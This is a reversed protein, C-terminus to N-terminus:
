GGGVQVGLRTIRWPSQAKMGVIFLAEGEKASKVVAQVADEVVSMSVLDLTGLNDHLAEMREAREEASPAGAVQAFHSRIFVTLETRDGANIAAILDRIVKAAGEDVARGAARSIAGAGRDGNMSPLGVLPAIQERIQPAKVNQSTSAIIMEAGSRPDREYLFFNILDSGALGVPQSPDFRINRTEAKLLKETSFLATYFAHMDSVTSLMGGNGRLNWYPGDAAHPKSLMTGADAGARDYGHALDRPSFGPLHFGTHTLGLPKLINDRVYEDYTSGSVIEIIAALLSYGTNSYSSRSGPEFLLTAKMAADILEGRTVKEFDGGLGLPYGAEHNLLHGITINRKDAPASPFYKSIRDDLRLRGREKLQLISVATFDKTNSGIQVVTEPTFPIRGARDALGYGKEFVIAGNKALLVVGSFGNAESARMVSDARAAVEQSYAITALLM